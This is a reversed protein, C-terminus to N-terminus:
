QIFACAGAALTSRGDGEKEGEGAKGGGEQDAHCGGEGEITDQKVVEQEILAKLNEPAVKLGPVAAATRAVGRGGGAGLM